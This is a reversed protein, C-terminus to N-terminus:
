PILVVKGADTNPDLSTEMAEVFQELGFTHTTVPRPDVRREALLPSM